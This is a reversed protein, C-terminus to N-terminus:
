SIQESLHQVRHLTRQILSKDEVDSTLADLAMRVAASLRFTNEVDGPPHYMTYNDYAGLVPDDLIGREDLSLLEFTPPGILAECWGMVATEKGGTALLNGPKLGMHLLSTKRDPWALYVKLTELPPPTLPTRALREILRMGNIIQHAIATEFGARQRVPTFAPPNLDHIRQLLSGLNEPPVWGGDDASWTYIILESLDPPANDRSNFSRHLIQPAPIGHERCHTSLLAEQQIIDAPAVSQDEDASLWRDPVIRIGIERGSADRGRYVAFVKGQAVFTIENFALPRGDLDRVDDAIRTLTNAILEDM